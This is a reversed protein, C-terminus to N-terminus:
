TKTEKRSATLIRWATAAVRPVQGNGLAALRDMGDAMGYAVRGVGPETPWRFAEGAYPHARYDLGSAFRINTRAQSAAFREPNQQRAEHSHALVWIREREHRAAAHHAGLVGWRADFGMGALDGLVRDLGRGALMPSNEVYVFEPGVERVVRGMEVWLGSRDGDLGAGKGAISVDQCPFGGAVIDVRGRYPRADFTRIDSFVPFRPLMGDRQRAFLVQQAYPEIEVAGICRHGLLLGGLIGGGAGAFLHLENM